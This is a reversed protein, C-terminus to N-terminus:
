RGHMGELFEVLSDAVAGPKEVVVAHGSGRIEEYRAGPVGDAIIRSYRGPKLIDEDAVLALCPCRIRGLDKTLDLALFADCLRVFGEFYDRPLAAVLEERDRLAGGNAEIYAASYNWPILSKYFVRPDVSAAKWSNIAAGLVSDYESVGDISVVSACAGPYDRAFTLAVEAGYSTGAVHARGVGVERLLSALDRAHREFSYPEKPRDSLLQGRFDHMLVRYGAGVLRDSVTKWHAMSMGIGNLLAVTEPGHGELLYEIGVGDVFARPV